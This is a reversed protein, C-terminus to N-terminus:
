DDHRYITHCSSLDHIKKKANQLIHERLDSDSALQLIADVWKQQVMTVLLGEDQTTILETWPSRAAYIGAAGARTIDFFKTYSRSPNFANELAPALGIHRGPTNLFAQYTTWKMPHTIHVRPLKRYM